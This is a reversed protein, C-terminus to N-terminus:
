VGHGRVDWVPSLLGVDAGYDVLLATMKFLQLEMVLQVARECSINILSGMCKAAAYDSYGVDHYGINSNAGNALLM